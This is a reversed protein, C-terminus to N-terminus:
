ECVSFYALSFLPFHFYEQYCANSIIGLTNSMWKNDPFSPFATQDGNSLFGYNEEESLISMDQLKLIHVLMRHRQLLSAKTCLHAEYAYPQYYVIYM